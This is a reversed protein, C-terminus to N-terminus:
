FARAYDYEAKWNADQDQDIRFIRDRIAELEIRQLHQPSGFEVISPITDLSERVFNLCAGAAYGNPFEESFIPHLPVRIESVSNVPCDNRPLGVLDWIESVYRSRFDDSADNFIRCLYDDRPTRETPVDYSIYATKDAFKFILVADIAAMQQLLWYPTLESTQKTFSAVNKSM